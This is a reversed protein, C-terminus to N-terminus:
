IVFESPRVIQTDGFSSLVLLDQDGTIIYDAKTAFALDLFMNDKIDRSLEFKKETPWFEVVPKLRDLFEQILEDTILRKSKQSIKLVRGGQFKTTIETWIAQSCLLTINDNELCRELMTEIQGDFVFSSILINTDLIIKM